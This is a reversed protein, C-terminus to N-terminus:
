GRGRLRKRTYSKTEGFGDLKMSGDPYVELLGFANRKDGSGEVVAPLSVYHIGARTRLDNVHNHGQFVALVKKSEELIKRVKGASKVLYNSPPDLDIRQHVFVLSKKRTKGLDAELWEREDPPIETDTWRFNKRGYPVGDARYCADLVVVHFDGRDFSYHGSRAGTHEFFEEKKLTQVCHNGLVYHRPSKLARYAKEIRELFALEQKVTPAADVFDGLEMSFDPRLENLRVVAKEVKPLSERYHRSGAREKDAYHIDTILGVKLAPKTGEPTAEALRALWTGGSALGALYLASGRLFSRRTVPAADSARVTPDGGNQTRM